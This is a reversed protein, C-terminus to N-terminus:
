CSRFPRTTRRGSVPCPHQRRPSAASLDFTTRYVFTAGFGFEPEADGRAFDVQLHRQERGLHFHPLGPQDRLRQTGSRWLARSSRGTRTSLATPWHFGVPVVGTNFILIPNATATTSFALAAALALLAKQKIM